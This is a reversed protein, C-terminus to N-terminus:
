TLFRFPSAKARDRSENARRAGPSEGFLLVGEMASPWSSSIRPLRKTTLRACGSRGPRFAGRAALAGNRMKRLGSARDRLRIREGDAGSLRQRFDFGGDCRMAIEPSFLWCAPCKM